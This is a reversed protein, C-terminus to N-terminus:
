DVTLVNRRSSFSNRLLCFQFLMFVMGTVAAVAIAAVLGAGEGMTLHMLKPIAGLAVAMALLLLISKPALAIPVLRSTIVVTSVLSALSSLALAMGIGDVAFIDIFTWVLILSLIAGLLNPYILIRTMMKAHAFLAFVGTSMRALEAFAGWRVYQYTDRYAPGLLLQTLEPALAVILAATLAMSPLVSAAYQPWAADREAGDNSNVKRYFIPQFYTSIVSEFGASVGAAIGFGTVFLGLNALGMQHEAIFRYSQSQIWGLSVALAVPWAFALFGAIKQKNLRLKSKGKNDVVKLRRYFLHLGLLGVAFQGLMLGFIWVEATSEVFKVLTFGFVLSFVSSAVTLLAFWGREGILNLSPITTQNLTGFVISAAVLMMLDVAAIKPHWWGMGTLLLLVLIAFIAVAILYLWFFGLYDRAQGKDDWAHMRRNIFMGVPNMLLLSFFAVTATVLAVKGMEAPPLLTTAVRLTILLMAFQLVRAIGTILMQCGDSPLVKM